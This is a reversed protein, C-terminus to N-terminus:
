CGDKKAQNLAALIREKPTPQQYDDHLGDNIEPTEQALIRNLKKALPTDTKGLVCGLHGLACHQDNVTYEKICWKSEPIKEFRKIFYNANYM